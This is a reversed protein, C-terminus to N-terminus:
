RETLIELVDLEECACSVGLLEALSPRTRGEDGSVWEKVYTGHECQVQLELGDGGRPEIGLVTVHRRRERDARRFAVREPTRQVVDLTQGLLQDLRAPDVDGAGVPTVRVRYVKSFSSEKWYAVRERPVRTLPDIDIRGACREQIRHHLDILDVDLVRAAVVEYVFPRGRGLMLVDIDERGAGHFRGYRGKFAPLIQRGLLEQISDKTLKGFGGCRPCDKRRRRNGKCEPCYFITQPLGREHKRYRSELFVRAKPRPHPEPLPHGQDSPEALSM